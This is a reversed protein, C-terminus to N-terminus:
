GIHLRKVGFAIATHPEIYYTIDGPIINTIEDEIVVFVVIYVKWLRLPLGVTTKYSLSCLFVELSHSIPTSPLGITNIHLWLSICYYLFIISLLQKRAKNIRDVLM